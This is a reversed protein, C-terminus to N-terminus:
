LFLQFINRFRQMTLHQLSILTKKINFKLVIIKRYQNNIKRQLTLVLTRFGSAANGGSPLLM